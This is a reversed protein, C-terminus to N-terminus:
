NGRERESERGGKARQRNSKIVSEGSLAGPKRGVVERFVYTRIYANSLFSRNKIRVEEDKRMARWTSKNTQM